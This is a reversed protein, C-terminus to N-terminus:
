HCPVSSLSPLRVPGFAAQTGFHGLTSWVQLAQGLEKPTVQYGEGLHLAVDVQLGDKKGQLGGRVEQGKPTDGVLM